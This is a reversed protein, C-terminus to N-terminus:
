MMVGSKSKPRGYRREKRAKEIGLMRKTRMTPNQWSKRTAEAKKRRGDPNKPGWIRAEIFKIMQAAKGRKVILYPSIRKLVELVKEHGRLITAYVTKKHNSGDKAPDGIKSQIHVSSGMLDAARQVFNRDTNTVGIEVRPWPQIIGYSKTNERFFAFGEGDIACALWSAEIESIATTWSVKFRIHVLNTM